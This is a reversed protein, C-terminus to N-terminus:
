PIEAREIPLGRDECFWLSLALHFHNRFVHTTQSQAAINAINVECNAWHWLLESSFSCFLESKQPNGKACGGGGSKAEFDHVFRLRVHLRM